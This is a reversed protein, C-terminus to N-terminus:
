RPVDLSVDTEVARDGAVLTLRLPLPGASDKPREEVTAIFRHRGPGASEGAAPTSVFWADPGEAFLAPTMGEPSRVTVAIRAKGDPGAAAEAALIALPGEAGLAQPKPVRALALRIHGEGVADPVLDLAVEARAPICIEKCVGYELALELRVPAHPTAPTVLVPFIVRDAYTYSVGGADETRRPAPWRLDIEGANQSGAWEFRPPLGSEGPNRWYTKFGRDLVIEVGALVRGDQMGGSVLRVRSHLGQMQPSADAEPALGLVALGCAALLRWARICRAGGPGPRRPPADPSGAPAPGRPGVLRSPAATM